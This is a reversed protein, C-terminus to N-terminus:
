SKSKVQESTTRRINYFPSALLYWWTQKRDDEFEKLGFTISAPAKYKFTGFLRDWLIFIDAYNSDTYHQDQEHHVKHFNPTTFLWGFTRDIWHPFRINSHELFVYPTIVLFFVGLAKVDLGFVAAALLNSIGLYILLEVPHSRLNTSADMRTDSHHVRHFRWFLPVRHALRHFWYNTFDFAAVGLLLTAWVPLNVHHLLGVRHLSLWDIASVLVMATFYGGVTLTVQIMINHMLHRPMNNFTFQTAFLNEMLYFLVILGAVIYNIDIALLQNLLEM